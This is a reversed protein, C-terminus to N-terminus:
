LMEEESQRILEKGKIAKQLEAPIHAWFFVDIATENDKDNDSVNFQGWKKSFHTRTTWNNEAVVIYEGSEEPLEVSADFFKFKVTLM